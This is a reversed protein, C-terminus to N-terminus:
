ASARAAPPKSLAAFQALVNRLVIPWPASKYPVGHRECIKRVDAAIQRTREPPLAPFLHHEIHNDLGGCLQSLFRPVEYNSTAMTQMWYWEGKSSAHKSRPFVATNEGIHGSYIMASMYLNGLAGACANALFVKMFFPGALSPFVVFEKFYYPIVRGLLARYAGVVSKASRDRLVDSDEASRFHYDAVGTVMLSYQGLLGLSNVALALLQARHYWRYPVLENQRLIGFRADPDRGIVNCHPHHQKVHTTYFSREDWPSDVRMRLSHLRPHDFRDYAGHFVTHSVEWLYLQRGAAVAVVGAGLTIPDFGFHILTRGLRMLWRARRDISVVYELDESGVKQRTRRGLDDLEAAFSQLTAADPPAPTSTPLAEGTLRRRLGGIVRRVFAPRERASRAAPPLADQGVDQM